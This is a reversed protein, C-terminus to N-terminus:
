GSSQSRQAARRCHCATVCVSGLAVPCSAVPVVLCDCGACAPAVRAGTPFPAGAPVPEAHSNHECDPSHSTNLCVWRVKTGSKANAALVGHGFALRVADVAVAEARSQRWERVVARLRDAM